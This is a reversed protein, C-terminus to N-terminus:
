GTASLRMGPATRVGLRKRELSWVIGLASVHRGTGAMSFGSM